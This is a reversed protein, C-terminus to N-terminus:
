MLSINSNQKEFKDISSLHVPTQIGDMNLMNMFPAYHSARMKHHAIIFVNMGALVSYQFSNHSDHFCQVNVVTRKSALWKPTPIFSGKMSSRYSGWSLRLYNIQSINWDINNLCRFHDIKETLQAIMDCLDSEDVYSTLLPIVFRATTYQMDSELGNCYFKVEMEIYYKLNVVDNEKKTTEFKITIDNQNWRVFDSVVTDQATGCWTRYGIMCVNYPDLRENCDVDPYADSLHPSCKANNSYEGCSISNCSQKM